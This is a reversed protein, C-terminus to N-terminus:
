NKFHRYYIKKVCEDTVYGGLEVSIQKWSMCSVNRLFIIQRLQSDDISDIYEMIRRREIQIKALLGNIIDEIYKIETATNGVRDSTGGGFPM